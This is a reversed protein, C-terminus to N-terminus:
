TSVMKPCACGILPAQPVDFPMLKELAGVALKHWAPVADTTVPVPGNLQVQAPLLPPVVADQEAEKVGVGTFPAQPVALPIGTGDAGVAFRQLAPDADATVPEPGKLQDHLPEFPPVL